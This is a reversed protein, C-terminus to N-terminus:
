DYNIKIWYFPVEKSFSLKKFIGKKPSYLLVARELISNSHHFYYKSMEPAGVSKYYHATRKKAAEIENSKYFPSDLIHIEGKSGLFNKLTSLLLEINEFYQVSANLTIIDYKKKFSLSAEFIDAYIFKLNKKNFVRAAQELEEVNIDLGDVHAFEQLAMQHAFWGNGCGIDLTTYNEKRKKLYHLIRLCSKKRLQWEHHNKDSAEIEPLKFVQADTLIRGEKKRVSIYDNSFSDKRKTLYLVSNEIKEKAEM